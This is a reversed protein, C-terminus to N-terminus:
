RVKSKNLNKLYESFSLALSNIRYINNYGIDDYIKAMKDCDYLYNLYKQYLELVNDPEVIHIINYQDVKYFMILNLDNFYKDANEFAFQKLVEIFNDNIRINASMYGSLAIIFILRNKMVKDVKNM